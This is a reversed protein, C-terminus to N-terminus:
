DEDNNEEEGEKQGSIMDKVTKAAGVALNQIGSITKKTTDVAVAASKSVISRTSNEIAAAQLDHLIMRTSESMDKFSILISGIGTWGESVLDEVTVAGKSMLADFVENVFTRRAEYPMDDIWQSLTDNIWRDKPETLESLSLKGHDVQWSALSHQMFGDFSSTVIHTNPIKTELLRGIVSYEPIIKTAKSYIREVKSSDLVEKCFGPGDLIYVQTLKDLLYDPLMSAAYLALNGGKSHGGIYWDRSPTKRKKRLSFAPANSRTGARMADKAYKLALRQSETETFGIMFDEKWGVLSNDTGRFAVFSFKDGCSFTVASFQLDNEPELRDIYNEVRLDGFRKSAAAAEFIARNGQDGGTIRIELEGDAIHPLCDRILITHAGAGPGPGAAGVGSTGTGTPAPGGSAAGCAGVVPQLDFYSIVCLVLADVDCFPKVDFDLDGLWEVYDKLGDM